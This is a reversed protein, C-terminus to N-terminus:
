TPTTAVRLRIHTITPMAPTNGAKLAELLLPSLHRLKAAVASNPVIVCWEHGEVPGAQVSARLGMPLAPQICELLQSSLKAHATLQTLLPSQGILTGIDTRATTHGSGYHQTVRSPRPRSPRDSQM